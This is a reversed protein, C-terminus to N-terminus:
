MTRHLEGLYDNCIPRGHRNCESHKPALSYLEQDKEWSLGMIKNAKKAFLSQSLIAKTIELWYGTIETCQLNPLFDLPLTLIGTDPILCHTPM